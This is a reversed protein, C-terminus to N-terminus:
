SRTPDFDTQDVLKENYLDVVAEPDNGLGVPREVRCRLPRPTGRTGSSASAPRAHEHILGLAHGFEHLIVRRYEEEVNRPNNPDFVLHMSAEGRGSFQASVVGLQSSYTGNSIADTAEFNITIDRTRGEVFEFKINAYNSWTPAIARVLQRLTDGYSDSRNLFGVKMPVGNPWRVEAMAAKQGPQWVGLDIEDARRNSAPGGLPSNACTSGTDRQM